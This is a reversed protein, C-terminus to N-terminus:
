PDCYAVQDRSTVEIQPIGHPQTVTGSIILCRGDLDSWDANSVLMVFSNGPAPADYCYTPSGSALPEYTCYAKPLRCTIQEAIFFGTNACLAMFPTATPSATLTSTPAPTGFPTATLTAPPKTPLPTRSSTPTSTPLPTRSSTPTTTPLPSPSITPTAPLPTPSNTPAVTPTVAVYEVVPLLTVDGQISVYQAATWGQSGEYSVWLWAHDGNHGSVTFCAGAPIRATIEAETSPEKRLRLGSRANACAAMPPFPTVTPTISPTPTITAELPYTPAVRTAVPAKPQVCGSLFLLLAMSLTFARM